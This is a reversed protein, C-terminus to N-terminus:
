SPRPWGAPVPGCGFSDRNSMATADEVLFAWTAVGEPWSVDRLQEAFSGPISVPRCEVIGPFRVIVAWFVEGDVDRNAPFSLVRERDFGAPVPWRRTLLGYAANYDRAEAIRPYREAISALVEAETLRPHGQGMEFWEGALGLANGPLEIERNLVPGPRTPPPKPEPAACGSALMVVSGMLVATRAVETDLRVM